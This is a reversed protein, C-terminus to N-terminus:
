ATPRLNSDQWACMSSGPFGRIQNGAQSVNTTLQVGCPAAVVLNRGIQSEPDAIRDVRELQPLLEALQSDTAIM